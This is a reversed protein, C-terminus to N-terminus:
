VFRAFNERANMTLATLAQVRKARSPTSAAMKLNAQISVKTSIQFFYKQIV